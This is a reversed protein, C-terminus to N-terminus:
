RSTEKQDPVAQLAAIAADRNANTPDLSWTRCLNQARDIRARRNHAAIQERADDSDAPVCHRTWGFVGGQSVKARDLDFAPEKPDSVRFTKKNVKKITAKKVNAPTGTPGSSYCVVEAGEQIWSTDRM